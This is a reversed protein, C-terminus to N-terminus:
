RGYAKGHIRNRRIVYHVFCAEKELLVTLTRNILAKDISPFIALDKDLQVETAPCKYDAIWHHPDRPCYCQEVEVNKVIRPGDGGVFEGSATQISLILSDPQIGYFFFVQYTGDGRDRIESRLRSRRGDHEIEIKAIFANEGASKTFNRGNERVAQIYLYRAPTVIRANLAPGFLISKSASLHKNKDKPNKNESFKGSSYGMLVLLLYAIMVQSKTRQM